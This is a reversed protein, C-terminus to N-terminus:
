GVQGPVISGFQMSYLNLSSSLQHIYLFVVSFKYLLKDTAQVLAITTYKSLM